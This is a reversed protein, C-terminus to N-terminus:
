VAIPRGFLPRPPYVVLTRRTQQRLQQFAQDGRPWNYEPQYRHAAGTSWSGTRRGSQGLIALRHASGPQPAQFVRVRGSGGYYFELADHLELYNFGLCNDIARTSYYWPSAAAAQLTPTRDAYKVWLLGTQTEVATGFDVRSAVAFSIRDGEFCTSFQSQDYLAYSLPSIPMILHRQAARTLPLSTTTPSFTLRNM